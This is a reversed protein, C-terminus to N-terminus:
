QQTLINYLTEAHLPVNNYDTIPLLIINNPTNQKNVNIDNPNYFLVFTENKINQRKKALQIFENVNINTSLNDQWEIFIRKKNKTNNKIMRNTREDWKEQTYKLVDNCITNIGRQIPKDIKKDNIQKYHIFYTSITNNDKTYTEIKPYVNGNKNSLEGVSMMAKSNIFDIDNFNEILKIFDSLKIVSWIFPHEYEKKIHDRYIFGAICNTSIILTDQLNM